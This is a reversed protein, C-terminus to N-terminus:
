MDSYYKTKVIVWLHADHIQFNQAQYSTILYLVAYCINIKLRLVNKM